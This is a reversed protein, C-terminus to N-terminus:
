RSKEGSMETWFSKGAHPPTLRLADAITAGLDAFTTRTGLNVGAEIRPGYALIPVCERTHDTSTTITPDCGHDATIFLIDDQKLNPLLWGLETDFEELGHAFGQVDNRHGWLMDFDVCNGFIIRHKTDSQVAELLAAMVERNNATKVANTIGRGAFLDYIKGISLVPLGAQVASDLVTMGTPLLSFDRRGATRVFKGPEGVFPRAIVRAVGYELQLLRRATQCIDYLRELPYLSEHAALQFVSDASTYLILKGTRLHEEGLREIIETGSASTNGMVKVGAATEFRKVLDSPFGNPFLPFPHDLILGALEWHGTTSDKGASRPTLKGFAGAPHEFSPVGQIDAVSGLGLIESHPMKLGGVAKAVHPLTAAGFDGYSEADPAGGVGCADLVLIIIRPSSM